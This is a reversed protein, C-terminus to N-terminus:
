LDDFFRYKSSRHIREVTDDWKPIWLCEPLNVEIIPENRPSRKKELPKLINHLYLEIREPIYDINPLNGWTAYIPAIKSYKEFKKKRRHDDFRKMIYGKGAYVIRNKYKGAQWLIYVGFAQKIDSSLPPYPFKYPFEYSDQYHWDINIM